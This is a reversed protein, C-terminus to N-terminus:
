VSMKLVFDTKIEDVIEMCSCIVMKVTSLPRIEFMKM